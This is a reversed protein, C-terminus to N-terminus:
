KNRATKAKPGLRQEAAGRMIFKQIKGAM